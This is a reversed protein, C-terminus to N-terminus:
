YKLSGGLFTFGFISPKVKEIKLLYELTIIRVYVLDNRAWLQLFACSDLNLVKAEHAKSM